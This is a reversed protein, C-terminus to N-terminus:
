ETVPTLRLAFSFEEADLRYQPLLAPGCSNSGIGSQMYDLCLVTDGCPVLEYNHRKATLEEATYDSANFSFPTEAEARLGRGAADEVRVWGCGWHSGNEQPRIYDEFLEATTSSFRGLYSSRHKDIYSENPGYGFYSINKQANPLFLRLGFRPLFPFVTDRRCSLNMDIAGDAGVTYRATIKLMPQMVVASIAFQCEIVARGEETRADTQYVRVTTRDYGVREWEARVARDNDTPARWLNWEMPRTIVTRNDCVLEDFVGTLKNFVYRFRDGSAVVATETEEVRVCDCAPLAPLRKTEERLTLQDFGLEHGAAVLPRNFKQRYTIKLLCTGEAPLEYHLKITRSAKAPIDLTDVTGRCLTEGDRTLEYEAYAYDKLNLFALKNEFSIEGTQANVLTARVPRIVNKYEKLGTHPTRDPYTLGDMCFNGDHPFEGFDGGYAYMPKGEATKGTLVAHDCWEWVFGGVFGDYKEILTQYDEADGPGNGMAHIYECQIFPKQPNNAFYDDVEETSAYMRSHVDLVSLDNKHEPSEANAGEYHTLRSPDYEKIWRGANEFNEGYGSENGFSWFMISPRNKDRIVNRQIRDLIAQEFRPDRALLGMTQTWGGGCIDGVGHCEIDSEAIVYFGYEDCLEPMWPANPYHSTRIANVNHQKMLRLDRILQEKSITYGTVPDSDHRNVGRLKINVGNYYIVGNKVEIKRIGVKQAIVEGEAEMVLTYLVPQEANWLQPHAVPFRIKGGEAKGEALKAGDPAYLTCCVPVEGGAFSFDVTVEASALGDSLPTKIFFDRIHREPRMLLYVDRFIGSMRLKDQDELYSGDCWKLVLVVLLNEGAHVFPTVAFESTSHSVQSYGVFEGNLWVYLCSDVGEFNLYRRMGDEEVCFTRSYVGCPNKAPVYPPDFPFPFRTNVYQHRDCGHNQWVSPVPITGFRSRDFGPMFFDQPLDYVSEYYSFAWDGNLLTFRPSEERPMAAAHEATDYPVYYSRIEETGVHLQSPDEYFKPFQMKM